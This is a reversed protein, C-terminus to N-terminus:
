PYAQVVYAKEETGYAFLQPYRIQSVWEAHGDSFVVNGGDAGHNDITDPYDNNSVKGAPYAVADDGDYIIWMSSPSANQGRLNFQVTKGKVNYSLNNQYTYGAIVNQTKRVNLGAGVTNNGNIFGSVEYSTGPGNRLNPKYLPGDEALEQLDPIFTSNDHLRQAYTKGTDNRPNHTSRILPLPNNSVSHQTSPCTFSRLNPVYTPYLWNLDDDGFNATGSVAHNDDDDAYMQSGAGMQKCNNLCAIRQARTKARNLAPLLMAALIAIIAIVVLLEILTFGAARAFKSANNCRMRGM